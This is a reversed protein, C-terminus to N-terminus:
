QNVQIRRFQALLLLFQVPLLPLSKVVQVGRQVCQVMKGGQKDMRCKYLRSEM